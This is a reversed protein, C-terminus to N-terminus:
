REKNNANDIERQRKLWPTVIDPEASGMIVRPKSSEITFEDRDIQIEEAVIVADSRYVGESDTYRLQRLKGRVFMITDKKANLVVDHALTGWAYITFIEGEQYLKKTDPDRIVRPVLLQFKTYDRDEFQTASICPASVAKGLVFVANITYM